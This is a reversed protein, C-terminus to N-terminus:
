PDTPAVRPQRAPRKRRPEPACLTAREAEQIRNLMFVSTRRTVGLIKALQNANLAHPRGAVLYLAQLWLQTPFRSNEFITGIKAVFHAKCAYCKWLGLRTTAGKLRGLHNREDCHPCVPGDPWVNAELYAIAAEESHFCSASPSLTM